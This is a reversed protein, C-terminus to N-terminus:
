REEDKAQLADKKENELEDRLRQLKEQQERKLRDIESDKAERLSDLESQHM